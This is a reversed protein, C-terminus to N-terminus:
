PLPRECARSPARAAYRLLGSKIRLHTTPIARSGLFTSQPSSRSSGVISLRVL